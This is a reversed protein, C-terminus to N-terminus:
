LMVQEFSCRLSVAADAVVFNVTSISFSFCLLNHICFAVTIPISMQALFM